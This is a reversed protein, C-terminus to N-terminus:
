TERPRYLLHMFEDFSDAILYLNQADPFPNSRWFFIAGPRLGFLALCILNGGQDSGIPLLEKPWNMGMIPEAVNRVLHIGPYYERDDDEFELNKQVEYYVNALTTEATSGFFTFISCEGQQNDELMSFEASPFFVGGYNSLFERYDKPLPYGLQMEIRDLHKEDVVPGVLLDKSYRGRLKEVIPAYKNNM